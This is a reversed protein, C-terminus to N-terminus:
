EGVRVRLAAGQEMLQRIATQADFLTAKDGAISFMADYAQQLAERVRQEAYQQADAVTVLDEVWHGFERAMLADGPRCTATYQRLLKDAMWRWAVVPLAPMNKEAM